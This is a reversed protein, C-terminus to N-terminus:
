AAAGTSTTHLSFVMPIFTLGKIDTRQGTAVFGLREYAPLGYPSARVTIQNVANAVRVQELAHSWLARGIGRCHLATPVFLQYLHKGDRLADVGRLTPGDEGVWYRFEGNSLNAAIAPERMSDLMAEAGCGDPDLTLHRAEGLLLASITGADALVAPRIQM